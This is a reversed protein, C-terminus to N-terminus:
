GQGYSPAGEKLYRKEEGTSERQLIKNRHPFRGFREIIEAHERAFKLFFDVTKGYRPYDEALREYCAVCFRQAAKDEAHQLPMYFFAREALGLERDMCAAVGALTLACAKPDREFAQPTGRFLNRPLQDLLLILALRPAPNDQWDRLAGSDAAKLWDGYREALRQDRTADKKFWFPGRAKITDPDHRAEAFWHELLQEPQCTM